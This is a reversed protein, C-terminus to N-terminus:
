VPDPHDFYKKIEELVGEPDEFVRVNEFRIVSINLSNIYRTRVEDRKRGEETFHPAGDLEIALKESPCYFDLIYYGVSHQRRFKRGALQKGKLMLWLTIEASTSHNRLRKRKDILEPKNNIQKRSM